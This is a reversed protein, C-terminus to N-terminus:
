RGSGKSGCTPDDKIRKITKIEGTMINHYNIEAWGAYKIEEVFKSDCWMKLISKFVDSQQKKDVKLMSDKIWVILHGDKASIDIFSIFNKAQPDASFLLDEFDKAAKAGDGINKVVFTEASGLIISDDAMMVIPIVQTRGTENVYDFTGTVIVNGMFSVPTAAGFDVLVIGPNFIHLMKQSSFKIVKKATMFDFCKGITDTPNGTILADFSKIDQGKCTQNAGRPKASTPLALIVVLLIVAIHIKM